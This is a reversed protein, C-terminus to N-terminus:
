EGSRNVRSGPRPLRAADEVRVAVAAERATVGLKRYINRVHTKMTNRSIFLRRSIEGLSLPTALYRWVELERESLKTLPTPPERVALEHLSADVVRSVYDSPWVAVLALLHELLWAREDLLMRTYGGREALEVATAVERRARQPDTACRARVLPVQVSRRLGPPDLGDLLETASTDGLAARARAEILRLRRGRVPPLLELAGLADDECLRLHAEIEVIRDLLRHDLRAHSLRRCEALLAFAAARQGRAHHLRALCLRILVRVHAVALAEGHGVCRNLQLQAGELDNRELCVLAKVSRADCVHTRAARPLARGADLARDAFQDADALRSEFLSLFAQATPFAVADYPSAPDEDHLAAELEARADPVRDALGLACSLPLSLRLRRWLPADREGFAARAAEAHEIAADISGRSMAHLFRTMELLPTHQADREDHLLTARVVFHEAQTPRRLLLLTLALESARSADVNPQRTLLRAWRAVTLFDGALFRDVWHARYTAWAADLDGAAVAHDMAGVEDGTAHCHRAARRHLLRLREPNTAALEDELARRLLAHVRLVGHEGPVPEVFATEHDLERLALASDSADRVADCRSASLRQLICTDVLFEVLPARLRGVVDSLLFDRIAPVAADLREGISRKSPARWEKAALMFAALWGETFDLLAPLVGPPPSGTELEFLEAAECEDLRLDSDVVDVLQGRVRLVALATVRPIRRGSVVVRHQESAARVLADLAGLVFPDGLNEVADLVLVDPRPVRAFLADIVEAPDAPAGDRRALQQGVDDRGAGLATALATTFREPGNDRAEFVVHVIGRRSGAWEQLGVTKGAGGCARVVAVRWGGDDLAARLRSRRM